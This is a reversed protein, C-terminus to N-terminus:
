KGKMLSVGFRLAMFGIGAILLWPTQKQPPVVPPVVPQVVQQAVAQEIIPTIAASAQAAVKKFVSSLGLLDAGLAPTYSSM